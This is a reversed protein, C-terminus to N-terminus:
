QETVVLTRESQVAGGWRNVAMTRGKESWELTGAVYRLEAIRAIRGVTANQSILLNRAMLSGM